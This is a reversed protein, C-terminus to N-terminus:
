EWRKFKNHIRVWRMPANTVEPMELVQTWTQMDPSAEVAPVYVANSPWYAVTSEMGAANISAIGYVISADLQVRNTSVVSRNPLQTRNSGTYVAFGTVAPDSPWDWGLWKVPPNTVPAAAAPVSPIASRQVVSPQANSTAADRPSRLPAAICVGVGLLAFLAVVGLIVNRCLHTPTTDNRM